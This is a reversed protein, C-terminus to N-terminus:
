IVKVCKVQCSKMDIWNGALSGFKSNSIIIKSNKACMTEKKSWKTM